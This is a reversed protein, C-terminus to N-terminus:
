KSKGGSMVWAVARSLGSFVALITSFLFTFTAIFPYALTFMVSFVRYGPTAKMKEDRQQQRRAIRAEKTLVDPEL